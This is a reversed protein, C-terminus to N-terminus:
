KQPYRETPRGVTEAPIGVMEALRGVMESFIETLRGVMDVLRRVTEPYFEASRQVNKALKEVTEEGEPLKGLLEWIEAVVMEQLVVTVNETNSPSIEIEWDIELPSKLKAQPEPHPSGISLWTYTLLEGFDWQLLARPKTAICLVGELGVGAKWNM